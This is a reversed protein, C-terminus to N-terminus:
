ANYALINDFNDEPYHNIPQKQPLYRNYTETPAFIDAQELSPEYFTYHREDDERHTPLRRPRKEYTEDESPDYPIEQSENYNNAKEDKFYKERDVKNKKKNKKNKKKTMKDIMKQEKLEEDLEKEIVKIQPNDDFYQDSLPQFISLNNHIFMQDVIMAFITILISNILLKDDQMLAQHKM